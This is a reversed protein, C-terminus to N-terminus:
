DRQTTRVSGNGWRAAQRPLESRARAQHQVSSNRRATEMSEIADGSVVRGQVGVGESASRTAQNGSTKPGSRLTASEVNTQVRLVTDELKRNRCRRFFDTRLGTPDDRRDITWRIMRLNSQSIGGRADQVRNPPLRWQVAPSSTPPILSVNRDLESLAESVLRLRERTQAVFDEFECKM